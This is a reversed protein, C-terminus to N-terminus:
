HRRYVIRYWRRASTPLASQLVHTPSERNSCSCFQRSTSVHFMNSPRHPCAKLVLSGLMETSSKTEKINFLRHRRRPVIETNKMRRGWNAVSSILFLKLKSENRMCPLSRYWMRLRGRVGKSILKCRVFQQKLCIQSFSTLLALLDLYYKNNVPRHCYLEKGYPLYGKM